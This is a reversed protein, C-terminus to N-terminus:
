RETRPKSKGESNQWVPLALMGFVHTRRREIMEKGDGHGKEKAIQGHRKQRVREELGSLREECKNDTCDHHSEQRSFYKM